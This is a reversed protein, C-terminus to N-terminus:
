AFRFKSTNIEIRNSDTIFNNIADLTSQQCDICYSCPHFAVERLNATYEILAFYSSCAILLVIILFLLGRKGNCILNFWNITGDDNKIPEVVRWGLFDKKLYVKENEPLQAAEITKGM